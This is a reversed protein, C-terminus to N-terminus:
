SLMWGDIGIYYRTSRGAGAKYLLGMGELDILERSATARSIGTLNTYKKTNMAGEFGHPGADLLLNLIKRQRLSLTKDCHRLWFTAKELSQDM